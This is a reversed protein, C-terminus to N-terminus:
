KRWPRTDVLTANVAHALQLVLLSLRPGWRSAVDDNLGYVHHFRVASITSYGPRSAFTTANAHCCVTDALLVLKPSASLLYEASLQPYGYDSPRAVSDAIDSATLMKLLSGVFTSSTLSYLTPDLEYYTSLRRGPHARVSAVALAVNKKITGVVV